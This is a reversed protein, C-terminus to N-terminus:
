SFLLATYEEGSGAEEGANEHAPELLQRNAANDTPRTPDVLLPRTSRLIKTHHTDIFKELLLGTLGPM